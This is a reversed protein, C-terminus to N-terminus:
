DHRLSNMPDIRSARMAPVWAALACAAIIVSVGALYAVPDFLRVIEAIPAADPLSVLLIGLALAMGAGITLGIGVPTITQGVVLRSVDRASAGLAMRVGIEKTRQEVLYSLVSFLGSLTLILALAGLVLTLWFAVQLFYSAMGVITKLTIIAELNPDVLTLRELLQRRAVESDGLVRVALATGASDTTVPLYVNAPKLEAFPFGAVDRAIGVITFNGAPAPRGEEQPEAPDPALRLVQGLADGNPWLQRAFSDGVIAVADNV